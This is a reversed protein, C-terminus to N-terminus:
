GITQSYIYRSVQVPEKAMYFIAKGGPIEEWYMGTGKKLLSVVKGKSTMGLEKKAADCVQSQNLKPREKILGWIAELDETDPDPALVFGREPDRMIFMHFPEYRTKDKTGIRCIIDEDEDDDIIEEPKGRRVKYLALVHDSLDFIATSGKYTRDNSKPTHHLLVITFGIDRLEKLRGMIFSMDKSDNEDKHQSSRLTDIILLSPPLKKYLEWEAGDVKPPRVEDANHWFLVDEIGIKKVRDVLMPLPNEFDIYYVPLKKTQLGLFPVGRSVADVLGLILWTKGVGGKGSFLTISQEPIQKDWVWTVSCEIKQLELGTRMVKLPDIEPGRSLGRNESRDLLGSSYIGPCNSLHHTVAQLERTFRGSESLDLEKIKQIFSGAGIVPEENEIKTLTREYMTHTQREDYDRGFTIEFSRHIQRLSLKCDVLLAMFAADLDEYGSLYGERYAKRVVWSLCNLVEDISKRDYPLFEDPLIPLQDRVIWSEWSRSNIPALILYNKRGVRYTVKIGCKTFVESSASLNLDTLFFFHLGNNTRHIGPEIGRTRCLERVHAIDDSDEVDLVIMEKPILWGTWGGEKEWSEIEKLSPPRYEPLTWGSSVPEKATKYDETANYRPHYGKCFLPILGASLYDSHGTNSAKGADMEQEKEMEM